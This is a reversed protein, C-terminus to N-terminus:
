PEVLRFRVPRTSVSRLQVAYWGSRTPPGYGFHETLEALSWQETEAPEVDVFGSGISERKWRYWEDGTWSWLRWSYPNFRLSEDTDNRVTFQVTTAYGDTAEVTRTSVSLPVVTEDGTPEAPSPPPTTGPNTEVPPHAIEDPNSGTSSTCGSLGVLGALSGGGAALLARRRM